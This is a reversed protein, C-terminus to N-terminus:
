EPLSLSSHSFSFTRELRLEYLCEPFTIRSGDNELIVRIVQLAYWIHQHEDVVCPGCELDLPVLISPDLWVLLVIYM